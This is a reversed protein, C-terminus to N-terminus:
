ASERVILRTPLLTAGGAPAEGGDLSDLLIRAAM